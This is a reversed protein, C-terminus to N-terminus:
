PIKQLTTGTNNGAEAHRSAFAEIADIQPAAGARISDAETVRVQSSLKSRIEQELADKVKDFPILQGGTHKEQLQLIHLGFQTQVVASLQGVKKLQFAANEFAPAMRGRGFFELEGGKFASGKDISNKRALEAFDAGARLSQLLEEAKKYAETGQGALLIHRVKVQEQAQFREPNARYESRARAEVAPKEAAHSKDLYSLYADSLVKDRALRLAAQEVEGVGLNLAEAKEAMARRVYLNGAIQQVSQARALVTKRMEEPIRQQADAEVDAATITIGAGQLLVAQEAAAVGAVGMSAVSAIMLAPAASQLRHWALFTLFSFDM